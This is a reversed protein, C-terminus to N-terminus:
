RAHRVLEVRHPWDAGAARDYEVAKGDPTLPCVQWTDGGYTFRQGITLREQVYVVLHGAALLGAETVEAGIGEFDHVFPVDAGGGVPVLVDPENGAVYARLANAYGAWAAGNLAM